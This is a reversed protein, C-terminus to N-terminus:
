PKIKKVLKRANSLYGNWQLQIKEKPIFGQKEWFSLVNGEYDYVVDIRIREANNERFLNELRCYICKGLGNGKLSADLMLLSLYVETAIKFDCIGIIEDQQNKIVSSIFGIRKMDELEQLMFKKSINSVGLHNNLFTTNSNYIEVIREIDRQKVREIRYDSM